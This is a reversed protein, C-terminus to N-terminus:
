GEMLKTAGENDGKAMLVQGLSLRAAENEPEVKLIQRFGREAEILHGRAQINRIIRIASGVCRPDLQKSGVKREIFLYNISREEPGFSYKYPENGRLFDYTKLGIEIAHRISYAHLVLGSPVGRAKEDRGALVFLMSKKIPDVLSGLVAIPKEDQWLIPMFLSGHAENHFLMTKRINYFIETAVEGKREGWKDTWLKNLIEYDRELTDANSLTIQYTDSAEVKRLFRRIKQRTNASVQNILYIDWDDPLRVYPCVSNDYGEENNTSSVKKLKFHSRPFVDTWLKARKESASFCQLNLSNWKLEKAREALAPIAADEAEPRCIFGVYDAVGQAAMWVETYVTGNKAPFARIRLPLFAQYAGADPTERVAFVVWESIASELWKSMWTWSLFHQAEPDAAYVTEWEDKFGLFSEYDDIVDIHM